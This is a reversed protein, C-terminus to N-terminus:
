FKRRIVVVLKMPTPNKSDETGKNIPWHTPIMPNPLAFRFAAQHHMIIPMKPVVSPIMEKLTKRQSGCVPKRANLKPDDIKLRSPESSNAMPKVM